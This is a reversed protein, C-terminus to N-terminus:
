CFGAQRLIHNCVPGTPPPPLPPSINVGHQAGVLVGFIDGKKWLPLNDDRFRVKVGAGIHVYFLTPPFMTLGTAGIVLFEPPCQNFLTAIPLGGLGPLDIEVCVGFVSKAPFDLNPNGSAGSQSEVEGPSLPLGLGMGARVAAGSAHTLNLSRIETHVERTGEPGEFNPPIFPMHVDGVPTDADGVPVGNEDEASGEILHDSRGIVTDKDVLDPSTLINTACNFGPFPNPSSCGMLFRFNRLVLINFNGSSPTMDNGKGPFEGAQVPGAFLPFVSLAALVM